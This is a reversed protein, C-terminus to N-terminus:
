SSRRTGPEREVKYVLVEDGGIWWRSSGHARLFLASFSLKIARILYSGSTRPDLNYFM